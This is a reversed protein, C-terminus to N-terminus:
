SLILIKKYNLPEQVQGPHGENASLEMDCSLTWASVTNTVCIRDALWSHSGTCDSFM